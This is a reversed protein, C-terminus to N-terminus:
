VNVYSLLDSMDSRTASEHVLQYHRSAMLSARGADLEEQLTKRLLFGGGKPLLLRRGADRSMNIVGGNSNRADLHFNDARKQSTEGHEMSHELDDAQRRVGAAIPSKKRLARRFSASLLYRYNPPQFHGIPPSESSTTQRDKNQM